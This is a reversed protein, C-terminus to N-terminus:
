QTFNLKQSFEEAEFLSKLAVDLLNRYASKTLKGSDSNMYKAVIVRSMVM